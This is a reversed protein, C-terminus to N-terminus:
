AASARAPNRLFPGKVQELFTGTDPAKSIRRAGEEQGCGNENHSSRRGRTKLFHSYQGASGKHSSSSRERTHLNQVKPFYPGLWSAMILIVADSLQVQELCVDLPKPRNLCLITGHGLSGIRAACRRRPLSFDNLAFIKLRRLQCFYANSKSYASELRSISASRM